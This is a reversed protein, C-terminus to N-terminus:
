QILYITPTMTTWISSPKTNKLQLLRSSSLKLRHLTVTTTVKKITLIKCVNLLWVSLCYFSYQAIRTHSNASSSAAPNKSFTEHREPSM